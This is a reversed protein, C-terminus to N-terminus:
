GFHSIYEGYVYIKIKTMSISKYICNSFNWPSDPWDCGQINLAKGGYWCNKESFSNCMGTFHQLEVDQEIPDNHLFQAHYNM